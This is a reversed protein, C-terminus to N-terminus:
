IVRICIDAGNKVPTVELVIALRFRYHEAQENTVGKMSRYTEVREGPTIPIDDVSFLDLNSSLEKLVLARYKKNNAQRPHDRATVCLNVM